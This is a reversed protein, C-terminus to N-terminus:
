RVQVRVAGRNRGEERCALIGGSRQLFALHGLAEERIAGGGTILRVECCYGALAERLARELKALAQTVTEGGHAIDVTLVSGDSQTWLDSDCKLCPAATREYLEPPALELIM